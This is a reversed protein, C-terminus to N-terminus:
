TRWGDKKRRLLSAFDYRMGKEDEEEEEEQEEEEEVITWFLLSDRQLLPGNARGNAQM